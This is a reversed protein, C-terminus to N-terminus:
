ERRGSPNNLRAVESYAHRKYAGGPTVNAGGLPYTKTDTYGGTTDINRALVHVRMAMVNNWGLGAVVDTTAAPPTTTYTDPAGDFPATADLGYELRLDEIGDVIPTITTGAPTM